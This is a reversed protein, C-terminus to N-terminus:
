LTNDNKKKTYTIEYHNREVNDTLLLKTAMQKNKNTIREILNLDKINEIGTILIQNLSILNQLKNTYTETLNTITQTQTQQIEEQTKLKTELEKIKATKNTLKEKLEKILSKYKNYEDSNLIYVKNELNDQKSINIRYNYIGTGKKREYEKVEKIIMKDLVKLHNKLRNKIITTIM